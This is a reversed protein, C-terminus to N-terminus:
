LSEVANHASISAEQKRQKRHRWLLVALLVLLLLGLAGGVLGATLPLSRSRPHYTKCAGDSDGAENAAFLCVQSVHDVYGLSGSRQGKGFIQKQQGGVTVFFGTVYSYPACWHLVVDSGNWLVSTLDPMHPATDHLTFGPCLCGTSAALEPCPTQNEVCLSFECRQLTRAEPSVVKPVISTLEDEYYDDPPLGPAKSPSGRPKFPRTPHTGPVQATAPLPCLGRISVLCVIVLPFRFEWIAAM